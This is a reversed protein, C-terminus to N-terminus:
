WARSCTPASHQLFGLVFVVALHGDNSMNNLRLLTDRTGKESSHVSTWLMGSRSILEDFRASPVKRVKDTKALPAAIEKAIEPLRDVISQVIAANGFHEFSDGRLELM